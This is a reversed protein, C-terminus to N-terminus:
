DAEKACVDPSKTKQFRTSLGFFAAMHTRAKGDCNLDNSRYEDKKKHSEDKRERFRGFLINQTDCILNSSSFARRIESLGSFDLFTAKGL